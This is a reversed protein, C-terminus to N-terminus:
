RRARRRGLVMLVRQHHARAPALYGNGRFRVAVRIRLRRHARARAPLHRIRARARFSCEPGVPVLRFALRHRGLFYAVAVSGSCRASPPLTAGGGLSGTTTFLRRRSRRPRTRARVVSRQQRLPLTVLTADAGYSAFSGHLAVIRYHFVTGPSLGSLRTAVPVPATGAPVSALATQLGYAETTGYQFSYATEAGNPEITGTLTAQRLGVREPPGTAAGPLPHGKTRFTRDSGSIGGLKSAASLRYHYVTGPLLDGVKEQVSANKTGAGASRSASASGYANTPGWEFVYSTPSGNPNVTGHLTAGTTQKASIAGTIM